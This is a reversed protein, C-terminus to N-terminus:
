FLEETWGSSEIMGKVLNWSDDSGQCSNLLPNQVVMVSRFSRTTSLLIHSEEAIMRYGEIDDQPVFRGAPGVLRIEQVHM